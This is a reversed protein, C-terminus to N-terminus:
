KYLDFIKKWTEIAYERNNIKKAYTVGNPHNEEKWSNLKEFSIHKLEETVHLEINKQVLTQYVIGKKNLIVTKDLYLLSIINGLGMQKKSHFIAIDIMDLLRLYEIYSLREKWVIAREGILERAKIEIRDRYNNRGYVMPMIIRIKKDKLKSFKKLFKVHNLSSNASHGIMIWIENDKILGSFTKSKVKEISFDINENPYPMPFCPVEIRQKKLEIRDCESASIGIGEFKRVAKLAKFRWLMIERLGKIKLKVTPFYSITRGLDNGWTRWIVKKAIEDPLRIATDLNLFHMVIHHVSKHVIYLYEMECQKLKEICFVNEYHTQKRSEETSEILILHDSRDLAEPTNNIFEVINTSFIGVVTLFHVYKVNHTGLYESLLSDDM